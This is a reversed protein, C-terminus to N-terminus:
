IPNQNIPANIRHLQEHVHRNQPQKFFHKGYQLRKMQSAEAHNNKKIKRYGINVCGAALLEFNICMNAIPGYDYPM